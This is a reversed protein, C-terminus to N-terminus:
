FRTRPPFSSWRTDASFELSYSGGRMLRTITGYGEYKEVTWERGNRRLDYINSMKDKLNNEYTAEASKLMGAQSSSLTSNAQASGLFILMADWQQACIMNTQIYEKNGKVNSNRQAAYLGWWRYHYEDNNAENTGEKLLTAATLVETNYKSGIKGDSDITTEYRGIYFGDYKNVSPVMEAYHVAYAFNNNLDAKQEETEPYVYYGEGYLNDLNEQNDDRVEAPETYSTYNYSDTFDTEVPIWVFENNRNSESTGDYIVLGELITHEGDTTSVKFGNPLPVVDTGDTIATVNESWGEPKTEAVSWGTPLEIIEKKDLYDQYSAYKNGDVKVQGDDLALEKDREAVTGQKAKNATTFLGGNLAVTVSVAVLILM